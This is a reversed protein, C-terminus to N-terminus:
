LHHRIKKRIAHGETARGPGAYSWHHLDNKLPGHSDGQRYGNAHLAERIDKDDSPQVGGGDHDQLDIAKGFGHNSQGPKAHVGTNRWAIAEEQGLTRGAGNLHDVEIEKHKANLQSNVDLYSKAADAALWYPANQIFTCGNVQGKKDHTSETIDGTQGIYRPDKVKNKIRNYLQPDKDQVRELAKPEDRPLFHMAITKNCPDATRNLDHLEEGSITAGPKVNAIRKIATSDAVTTSAETTPEETAPAETTPAATLRADTVNTETAPSIVALAQRLDPSALSYQNRWSVDSATREAKDQSSDHGAGVSLDNPIQATQNELTM